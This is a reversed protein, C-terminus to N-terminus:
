DPMKIADFDLARYTDTYVLTESLRAEEDALMKGFLNLMYGENFADRNEERSIYQIDKPLRRLIYLGDGSFFLESTEGEELAFATDVLEDYLEDYEYRGFYVGRALEEASQTIAYEAAKQKFAEDTKGKAENLLDQRMAETYNGLNGYPILIWSVCVTEDGYYYAFVDEWPSTIVKDAKLKAALRRECADYRLYLRYVSDNLFQEKIDALYSKYNGYGATYDDGEILLAIEEEIEEEVEESYPDIGYKECLSFLAYVKLAEAEAEESFAHFLAEKDKDKFYNEDGGSEAQKKQLFIFRFLEYPVSYKGDLTMVAAAEEATSPEARYGCSFLSLALCLTLCFLLVSRVIKM